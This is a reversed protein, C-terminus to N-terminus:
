LQCTQTNNGQEWEGTCEGVLILKTCERLRLSVDPENIQTAQTLDIVIEFSKETCSRLVTMIHYLLQHSFTM